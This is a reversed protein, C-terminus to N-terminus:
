KDIGFLVSAVIAIIAAIIVFAFSFHLNETQLSTGKAGYVIVGLLIFAAAAALCAIGVLKLVPKDKLVFLKLIVVIVAAILCLFGLTEMAQVAEFWSGYNQDGTSVCSTTGSETNCYRWLGENLDITGRAAGAYISGSAWYPTAFGILDFFAAIITLVFGVFTPLNIGAIEMTFDRLIKLQFRDSYLYKNILLEVHKDFCFLVSAVIAVTAAIIVLAFGFHLNEKEISLSKGGYICVGILILTAAAALCGVAVWKLFLKDKLVFLKLIVVSSAAILCLFGLTEMAQVVEFWSELNNDLLSSCATTISSKICSSWLGGHYEILGSVRYKYWYPVAFGILDFVTAVITLICGVFTLEEGEM